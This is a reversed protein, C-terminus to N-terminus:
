ALTQLEEAINERAQTERLGGIDSTFYLNERDLFGQLIKRRARRYFFAPVWSYEARIAERYARYTDPPAGLIALDLDLFLQGDNDLGAASHTKTALILGRVRETIEAPVNLSDLSSVALDASRAENDDRRPQYVADHFWIAFAVVTADSLRRRERLDEAMLLLANVHSFNHYARHPEDHLTCLQQWVEAARAADPAYPAILDRWQHQLSEREPADIHFYSYESM